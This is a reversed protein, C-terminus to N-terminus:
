NSSPLMLHSHTQLNQTHCLLITKKKLQYLQIFKVATHTEETVTDQKKLCIFFLFSDSSYIWDYGIM